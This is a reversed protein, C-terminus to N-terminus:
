PLLAAGQSGPAGGGEGLPRTPITFYFSSGMGVTSQVGITGHHLDILHKCISLGLGTGGTKRTPTSDVQSFAKFLKAQDTTSIGPGSDAVSVFVEEVGRSNTQGRARVVIEGEETFKAANSLLNILVQRLRMPDAHAVPLDPALEARLRIPKDKVLGAATSMVGHITDALNVEEFALEMKGAEIKALDLIDNILGLLHQGSSYIATLDQQQQESIPGDIGKLIVRSFGIISNLPTRLEHSMNALFQTKIQDLQRLEDVARQSVEYSRANEIAVAVQDALIELVAVDEPTFAGAETAQIDLAGIVREGVKLPLGAEARTEPLLPNPRHIPDTVTNNVVLTHGTATVQGIISRSGVPLAHGLLLMQRGAEGTAERLVADSGSEDLTFVAAHYFDFRSRVLGVTRNFLTQLDLTSTVLRGVETATALYKNQRQLASEAVKRQTIDTLTARVMRGRGPLAALRVETPVIQRAANRLSWEFIVTEGALAADVKERAVDASPRGDPQTEPALQLPTAQTLQDKALGYLREANTNPEEFRFRDADLVVIAEPANEVLNRFNEEKAETEEFLRATQIAVAAHAAIATLLEQQREQYLDAILTSQVVIAGLIQTGIMLPVGLWSKAPAANGITMLELGLAAMQSSVDGNLLLTRKKRIVWDTLGRGVKRGQVQLREGEDYLVPFRLEGHAEDTLAVFFNRTDMLRATHRYVTEAIQEVNLQVAIERAMENLVALESNQRQTQQFLDANQLALTLQDVVQRVLARDDESWAHEPNEDLVQLHSWDEGIGRFDIDLTASSGPGGNILMTETTPQPVPAASDSATHGFFATREAVNPSPGPPADSIASTETPGSEDTLKDFLESLRNEIRKKSM